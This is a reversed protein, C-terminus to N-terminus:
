RRGCYDDGPLDTCLSLNGTPQCEEGEECHYTCRFSGIGVTGVFACIGGVGCTDSGEVCAVGADRVADCTTLAENIGCYGTSAAGSRSIRDAIGVRYPAGNAACGGAPPRALCFYGNMMGDFLTPVCAATGACETDSLCTQCSGLSGRPTETCAGAVPDCSNGGCHTAATAETCEVCTGEDCENEGTGACQPSATCPACTNTELDCRAAAADTCDADTDCAVCRGMRDGSTACFPTTDFRACSADVECAVCTKTAGDCRPASPDACDADVDCAVCTGAFAGETACAPTDGFRACDAADDCGAACEGDGDCVPASPSSCDTAVSASTCTVCSADVCHADDCADDCA